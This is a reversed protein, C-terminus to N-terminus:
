IGVGVGNARPHLVCIPRMGSDMEVAMGVELIGDVGPRLEYCIGDVVVNLVNTEYRNWPGDQPVQDSHSALFALKM